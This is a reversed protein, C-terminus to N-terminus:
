GGTLRANIQNIAAQNITIGDQARLADAYINLLDNGTQADLRGQVAEILAQNEAIGSDFATIKDLQAIFISDSGAIVSAQGPKLDNKFISALLAPPTEAIVHSRQVDTVAHTELSGFSAGQDLDTKLKGAKILLLRVAEARKWDAIVQTKVESLPKLTPETIKDVQLAFIGGDSLDKIEPFDSPKALNAAKRFNEYAAIGNTTDATLSIKGLTMDTDKSLEELTAGAALMDDIDTVMDNILRREADGSLEAVLIPRAEDYPTIDAAIIANIRFLASGLSSQVPGVVGTSDAAFVVDAAAKSLNGRTVEGLDVDTPTLKQDALLTNFTASGADLLNRADTAEQETAFVIRELSRKEPKNFRDSQLDYSDRIEAEDVAVKAQLMEPSLWTYTIDRTLPATYIEPTAKYQAEIQAEVPEPVPGDLASATIEAWTYDRRERNYALMAKAQTGESKLGTAIASQLYIRAAQKRIIDEYLTTTLGARKLTYDYAEKDFSGDLKQFSKTKLLETRVAVDGVSIGLKRTENDLAATTLLTQLVNSQVGYAKAEAATVSRRLKRSLDSMARNMAQAYVDVSVSEEGVQAVTRISGRGIGSRGFGILGLILLGLISWVVTQNTKKAKMRGLM